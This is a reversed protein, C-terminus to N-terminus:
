GSSLQGTAPDLFMPFINLPFGFFGRFDFLNNLPGAVNDFSGPIRPVRWNDEVFRIISSQDTLRTTSSTASRGRHSWSSRSAHGTAADARSGPSRRRRNRM